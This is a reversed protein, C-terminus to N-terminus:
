SASSRLSLRLFSDSVRLLPLPVPRDHQAAERRYQTAGIASYEPEPLCPLDEYTACGVSYVVRERAPAVATQVSDDSLPFHSLRSLIFRLHTRANRDQNEADQRSCGHEAARCGWLCQKGGSTLDAVVILRGGSSQRQGAHRTHPFASGASGGDNRPLGVLAEQVPEDGACLRGHWFCALRQGFCFDLTDAVPDCFSSGPNFGLLPPRELREAPRTRTCGDVIEDSGLEAFLAQMGRGFGIAAGENAAEGVVEM